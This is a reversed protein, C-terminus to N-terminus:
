DNSVTAQSVQNVSEETVSVTGDSRVTVNYGAYPFCVEGESMQHVIINLADPEIAVYLPPLDVPDTNTSVAVSQVVNETVSQPCNVM